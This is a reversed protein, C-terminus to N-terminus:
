NTSTLLIFVFKKGYENPCVLPGGSDGDCADVGSKDLYGACFMTDMIADGYIHKQRCINQDILPVTASKLDLSPALFFISILKKTINISRCNNVQNDM